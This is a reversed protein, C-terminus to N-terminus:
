VRRADVILTPALGAPLRLRRKWLMTQCFYGTVQLLRGTGKQHKKVLSRVDPLNKKESLIRESGFKFDFAAHLPGVAVKAFHERIESPGFSKRIHTM